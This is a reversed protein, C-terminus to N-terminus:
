CGSAPWPRLGDRLLGAVHPPAMGAPSSLFGSLLRGFISFGGMLGSPRPPQSRHFAWTPPMHCGPPHFPDPIHLHRGRGVFMIAILSWSAYWRPKNRSKCTRPPRIPAPLTRPGPPWLAPPRIQSRPHGFRRHSRFPDGPDSFDNAVRLTSDPFQDAPAFVLAGVGVGSTVIGLAM